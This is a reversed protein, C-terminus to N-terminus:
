PKAALPLSTTVFFRSKEEVFGLKEAKSAIDTYSSAILVEERLLTNQKEYLKLEDELKALEIGTTSLSNAVIVQVISLCVIISSIFLIFYFPKKM